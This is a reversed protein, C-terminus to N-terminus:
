SFGDSPRTVRVGDLYEGLSINYPIGRLRWDDLIRTAEDADMARGSVTAHRQVAAVAEDIGGLQSVLGDFIRDRQPDDSDAPAVGEPILGDSIGLEAEQAEALFLAVYVDPNATAAEEAETGYARALIQQYLEPNDRRIHEAAARHQEARIVARYGRKRRSFFGM